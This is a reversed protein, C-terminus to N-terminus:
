QLPCTSKIQHYGKNMKLELAKFKDNSKMQFGVEGVGGVLWTGRTLIMNKGEKLVSSFSVIRLFGEWIM